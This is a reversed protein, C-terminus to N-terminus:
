ADSHVSETEPYDSDKSDSSEDLSSDAHAHEDDRVLSLVFTHAHSQQPVPSVSEEFQVSREIILWDLSLDIIM